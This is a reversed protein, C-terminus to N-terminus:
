EIWEIHGGKEKLAKGLALAGAKGINNQSLDISTIRWNEVL